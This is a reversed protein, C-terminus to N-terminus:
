CCKKQPLTCVHFCEPLYTTKRYRQSILTHTKIKVVGKGYVDYYYRIPHNGINPESPVVKVRSTISKFAGSPVTVLSDKGTMQRYGKYLLLNSSDLAIIETFNIDSSRVQGTSNVLYGSSDRLYSTVKFSSLAIPNEILKSYNLGRIITDKEIYASDYNTTPSVVGNTDIRFGQYIWYNGVNLKFYDFKAVPIPDGTDKKCSIAMVTLVAIIVFAMNRMYFLNPSFYLHTTKIAPLVM